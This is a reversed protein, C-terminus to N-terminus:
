METSTRVLYYLNNTLLMKRAFNFIQLYPESVVLRTTELVMISLIVFSWMIVNLM